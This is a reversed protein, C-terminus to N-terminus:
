AFFRVRGLAFDDTFARDIPVIAFRGTVWYDLTSRSDNEIGVFSALSPYYFHGRNSTGNRSHLLVVCQDHVSVLVGEHYQGERLSELDHDIEGEHPCSNEASGESNPNPIALNTCKM